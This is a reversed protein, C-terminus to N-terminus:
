RIMLMKKTEKYDGSELKYFYVGSPYASANWDAQYTGPKLQKKVLIAAERGLLDYVILSTETSAKGSLTFKITTVPNFPNPYNQYLSHNEPVSSNENIRGTIGCNTTKLIMGYVGVAMGVCSPLVAIDYLMYQSSQNQLYWTVGGNDTMLIKGAYATIWGINNNLFCMNSVRPVNGSTLTDWTFGSNLSKLIFGTSDNKDGALLVMNGNVFMNNWIVLRSRFVETWNNGSDTSRFIYNTDFGPVDTSYRGWVYISNNGSCIVKKYAIHGPLPLLNWTIGGDTSRHMNGSAVFGNSRSACLFGTSANNFDLSNFSLRDNYGIGSYIQQWNEGGNKTKLVVNFQFQFNQYYYGLIYGTNADAFCVSHMRYNSNYQFPQWSNGGDTTKIILGSNGSIWGTLSNLLELNNFDSSSNSQLESWQSYVPTTLISVIVIIKFM